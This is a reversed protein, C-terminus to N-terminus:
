GPLVFISHRQQRSRRKSRDPLVGRMDLRDDAWSADRNVKADRMPSRVGSRWGYRRTPNQRELGAKFAACKWCESIPKRAMVWGYRWLEIGMTNVPLGLPKVDFGLSWFAPSGSRIFSLVFEEVGNPEGMRPAAILLTSAVDVSRASAGQIEPCALLPSWKGSTTAERGHPVPRLTEYHVDPWSIRAPRPTQITQYGAVEGNAIANSPPRRTDIQDVMAATPAASAKGDWRESLCMTVCGCNSEDLVSSKV